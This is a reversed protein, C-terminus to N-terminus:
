ASAALLSEAEAQWATAGLQVFVPLALRVQAETGARLRAYAEDPVTGIQAYVDAAAAYEGSLIHGAAQHWPTQLRSRAIAGALEDGRGLDHFAWAGDALEHPQRAGTGRWRGSLEDALANAEDLEAAAILARIQFALSPHLSQPDESPRALETARAAEAVALGTEGRSLLIAARIERCSSEM